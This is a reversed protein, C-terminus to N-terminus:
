HVIVGLKKFFNCLKEEEVLLGEKRSSQESGMMGAPLPVGINQIGM